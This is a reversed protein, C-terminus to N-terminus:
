FPVEDEAPETEGSELAPASEGGDGVFVPFFAIVWWTMSPDKESVARQLYVEAVVEGLRLATLANLVAQKQTTEDAGAEKAQNIAFEALRVIFNTDNVSGREGGDRSSGRWEFVSTTSLTLTYITEDGAFEGSDPLIQVQMDAKFSGRQGTARVIEDYIENAPNTDRQQEAPDDYKRAFRGNLDDRGIRGADVAGNKEDAALFIANYYVPPSVIRVTLSPEPTGDRKQKPPFMDGDDTELVGAKLNLRHFEGGQAVAGTQGLLAMLDDRSLSAPVVATEASAARGRGRTATATSAM